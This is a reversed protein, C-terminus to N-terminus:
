RIRRATLQSDKSPCLTLLSRGQCPSTLTTNRGLTVRRTSSRHHGTSVGLRHLCMPGDAPHSRAQHLRLHSTMAPMVQLTSSPRDRALGSHSSSLISNRCRDSDGPQHRALSRSSRDPRNGALSRSSQGAQTSALRSMSHLSGSFRSDQKNARPRHCMRWTQAPWRLRGRTHVM